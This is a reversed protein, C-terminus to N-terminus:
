MRNSRNLLDVVGINESDTRHILIQYYKGVIVQKNIGDKKNWHLNEHKRISQLVM